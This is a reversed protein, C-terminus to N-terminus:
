YKSKRGYNTNVMQEYTMIMGGIVLFTSLLDM